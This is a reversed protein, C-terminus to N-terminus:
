TNLSEADRDEIEIFLHGCFCDKQFRIWVIDLEPNTNRDFKPLNLLKPQFFHLGRTCLPLPQLALPFVSM